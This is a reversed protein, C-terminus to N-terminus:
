LVFYLLASEILTLDTVPGSLHRFTLNSRHQDSIRVMEQSRVSLANLFRSYHLPPDPHLYSLSFFVTHCVNYYPDTYPLYGTYKTSGVAIEQVYGHGHVFAASALFVALASLTSAFM